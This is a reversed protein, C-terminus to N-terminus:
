IAGHQRLAERAAKPADPTETVGPPFLKYLVLPLLAIMTLIPISSAVLWSGFNIKVGYPEAM